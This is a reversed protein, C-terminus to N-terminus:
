KVKMKNEDEIPIPCVDRMSRKYQGNSTKITVVRVEGDAGPHVDIVKGIAWQLPPM